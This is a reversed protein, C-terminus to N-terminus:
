RGKALVAAIERVRPEPDGKAARELASKGAPRGSEALARLSTERVFAFSDGLAAKELVPIVDAKADRKGVIGLTRAADARVSWQKHTTLIVALAKVSTADGRTSLEEIALRQVDASADTL